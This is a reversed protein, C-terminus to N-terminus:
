IEALAKELVEYHWHYLEEPKVSFAKDKNVILKDEAVTVFRFFPSLIKIDYLYKEIRTIGAPVPSRGKNWLEYSNNNLFIVLDIESLHDAYERSLGGNLTIGEVGELEEFLKIHGKLATYFENLKNESELNVYPRKM